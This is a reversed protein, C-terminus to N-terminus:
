ISLSFPLPSNVHSQPGSVKFELANGQLAGKSRGYAKGPGYLTPSFSDPQHRSRNDRDKSARSSHAKIVSQWAFHQHHQLVPHASHNELDERSAFPAANASQFNTRLLPLFNPRNTAKTSRIDQEKVDHEARQSPPNVSAKRLTQSGYFEFPKPLRPPFNEPPKLPPSKQSTNRNM